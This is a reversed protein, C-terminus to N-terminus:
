NVREWFRYRREGPCFMNSGDLVYSFVLSNGTEFDLNLTGNAAWWVGSQPANTAAATRSYWQM